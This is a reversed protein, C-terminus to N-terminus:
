KLLDPPVLIELSGKKRVVVVPPKGLTVVEGRWRVTVGESTEEILNAVGLKVTDGTATVTRVLCQEGM